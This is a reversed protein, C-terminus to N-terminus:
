EPCPMIEVEVSCVKNGKVSRYARFMNLLTMHDGDGSVFKRHVAVVQERKQHPTFVVSDVSLMAVVSVVEHGCGQEPSAIIARALFPDLPFHAMTRGLATLQLNYDEEEEAEGDISVTSTSSFCPLVIRDKKKKATLRIKDKQKSNTGGEKADEEEEVAGLLYLQEVAGLLSLQPPPSMFDFTMVNSVGLALLQLVVSSLHCRQIEPITDESLAPTWM